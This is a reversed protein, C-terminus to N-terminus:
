TSSTPVDITAGLLDKFRILLEYEPREVDGDATAVAIVSALAFNKDDQSSIKRALADLKTLYTQIMAAPAVKIAEVTENFLAEGRDSGISNKVVPNTTAVVKAKEMESAEADGDAFVMVAMATVAWEGAATGVIVSNLKDKLSSFFGM